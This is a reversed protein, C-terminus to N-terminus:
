VSNGELFYVCRYNGMGNYRREVKVVGDKVMERLRKAVTKVGFTLGEFDELVCEDKKELVGLIENEIM